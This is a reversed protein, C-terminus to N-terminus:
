LGQFASTYSQNSISFSGGQDSISPTATTLSQTNTAEPTVPTAIGYAVSTITISGFTGTISGNSPLKCVFNTGSLYINDSADLEVDWGFGSYGLNILLQWDISPGAPNIKAVYVRDVGPAAATQVRGVVILKNDSTKAMGFLASLSLGAADAVVRQWQQTGSSNAKWLFGSYSSNNIKSTTSYGCAYVDTGISVARTFSPSSSAEESDAGVGSCWQFAFSSNVKVIYAPFGYFGNKRATIYYNSGDWYISTPDTVGGQYQSGTLAGLSTNMRVLCTYNTNDYDGSAVLQSGNWIIYNGRDYGGATGAMIVDATLSGDTAMKTVAWDNIYSSGPQAVNFTTYINNSSDIAPKRVTNVSQGYGTGLELFKSWQVAGDSSLKAVYVDDYTGNEQKGAVAINGASDLKLGTFNAANTGTIVNVWYGINGATPWLGQKKWYSADALSWVGSAASNQYPGTPTVPTKRIVGGPWRNSM